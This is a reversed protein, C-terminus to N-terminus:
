VNARGGGIILNGIERAFADDFAAGRAGFNPLGHCHDQRCTDRWAALSQTPIGAFWQRAAKRAARAALPFPSHIQEPRASISTTAMHHGGQILKNVRRRDGFLTPPCVVPNAFQRGLSGAYGFTGGGYGAWLPASLCLASAFFGGICQPRYTRRLCILDGFGVAMTKVTSLDYVRNVPNALSM